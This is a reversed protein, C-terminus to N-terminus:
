PCGEFYQLAAPGLRNMEWAGDWQNQSVRIIFDDKEDQTYCHSPLFVPFSWSLFSFCFVLARVCQLRAWVPYTKQQGLLIWCTRCM